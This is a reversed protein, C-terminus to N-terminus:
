SRKTSWNLSGIVVFFALGTKGTIQISARSLRLAAVEPQATFALVNAVRDNCCGLGGNWPRLM